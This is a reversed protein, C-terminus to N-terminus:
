LVTTTINTHIQQKFTLVKYTNPIIWTNLLWYKDVCCCWRAPAAIYCQERLPLFQSRLRTRMIASIVQKSRWKRRDTRVYVRISIHHCVTLCPLPLSPSVPSHRPYCTGKVSGRLITYGVSSGSIRVGRSGTTSQVSAGALKFQSGNRRFVFYPKQAHAM